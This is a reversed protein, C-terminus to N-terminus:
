SGTTGATDTIPGTIKITAAFSSAKDFQADLNNDQIYGAFTRLFGTTQGAAPPYQHKVIVKTQAIFAANVVLQGADTLDSVGGIAVQGSDLLTPLFERFAGPSDMNTIDELDTKAGSYQTTKIQKCLTFATGGDISISFTSGKGTQAKTAMAFVSALILSKKRMPTREPNLPIAAGM